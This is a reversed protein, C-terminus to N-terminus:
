LAIKELKKYLVPKGTRIISEVLFAESAVFADKPYNKLSLTHNQVAKGVSRSASDKLRALTIHFTSSFRGKVRITDKLKLNKIEEHFHDAADALSDTTEVQAMLVRPFSDYKFGFKLSNIKIDVLGTTKQTSLLQGKIIEYSDESVNGGIYKLTLHMQDVPAFKLNRKQGSYLRLYDRFTDLVEKPPFIGVFLRM